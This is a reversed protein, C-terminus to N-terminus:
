NKVAKTIQTESAAWSAALDALIPNPIEVDRRTETHTHTNSHQAQKGPTHTEEEEGQLLRQVEVQGPRWVCFLKFFM